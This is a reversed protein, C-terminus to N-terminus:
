QEAGQRTRFAFPDDGRELAERMLDVVWSMLGAAEDVEFEDEVTFRSFVPASALAHLAAGLRRADADDLDPRIAQVAAAFAERRRKRGDSVDAGDYTAAEIAVVAQFVSGQAHWSRWLNQMVEGFGDLGDPALSGGQELTLEDSWECLAAFLAERSDFYNYLTRKSVGARDAVGQLSVGEIGHEVIEDAAAQLISSRALEKQRSRLSDTPM